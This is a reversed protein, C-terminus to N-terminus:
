NIFIHHLMLVQTRLHLYNPINYVTLVVGTELLLFSLTVDSIKQDSGYEVGSQHIQQNYM